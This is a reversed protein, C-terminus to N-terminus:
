LYDYVCILTGEIILSRFKQDLNAAKLHYKSM